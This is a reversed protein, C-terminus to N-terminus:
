EYGFADLFPKLKPLHPDLYKEYNRWRGRARKFVKQTVDAYTPSRVRKNRAHEDFGLVREDWPVGLFELATRAVSELDEVMDEYRVELYANPLIPKLKLWMGMLAAYEDTATDLSLFMANGEGLPLFPQMFCSLVVDRPDRLAILLRIEPFVRVLGPISLTLSPHKDILLREGIAAGLCLESAKRYDERLSRLLDMPASDFVELFPSGPDLRRTLPMGVYDGYNGTEEMSVIEPHSDLVQELLTTGSRPHGGLFALRQPPQLEDGSKFWRQLIDGNMDQRSQASCKLVSLRQNRHPEGQHRLLAKAQFFAKMAEDYRAQRDLVAGMEYWARVRFEPKVGLQLLPQLERAARDHKGARHQLHAHALLAAPDTGDMHLAKEVLGTADEMRCSREAMEAARVLMEPTAGKEDVVREFYREALSPDYFDRAQQGADSLAQAKKDPPSLRYAKEFYNEATDYEYLLGHMGGLQRLALTDVPDMRIVRELIEVCQHLDRNEWAQQVQVRLRALTGKSVLRKRRM